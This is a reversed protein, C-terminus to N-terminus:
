AVEEATPADVPWSQVQYDYYSVMQRRVEDTLVQTTGHLRVFVGDPLHQAMEGNIRWAMPEDPTQVVIMHGHTNSGDDNWGHLRRTKSVGRASDDRIYVAFAQGSRWPWWLITGEPLLAIETRDLTDGPGKTTAGIKALVKDTIGVGTMCTNFVSCWGNTKQATKGVRYVRLAIRTLTDDDAIVEPAAPTYGPISYITMPVGPQRDRTGLIRTLVQNRIEFVSLQAPVDPHGTYLVTGNPMTRVDVNSSVIGGETFRPTGAGFASCMEIIPEIRIGSREAAGLASDRMRWRFAEVSELPITVEDGEVRGLWNPGNLYYADMATGSSSETWTRPAVKEYPAGRSHGIRVTTGLPLLDGHHILDPFPEGPKVLRIM